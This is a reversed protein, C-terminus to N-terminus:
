HVFFKELEDQLAKLPRLGSLSPPEHALRSFVKKILLNRRAIKQRKVKASGEQCHWRSVWISSGLAIFRGLARTKGPRVVM